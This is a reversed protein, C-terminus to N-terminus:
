HYENPLCFTICTKWDIAYFRIDNCMIQQFYDAKNNKIYEEYILKLSEIVVKQSDDEFSNVFGDYLRIDKSDFKFNNTYVEQNILSIKM